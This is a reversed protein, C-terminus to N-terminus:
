DLPGTVREVAALVEGSMVMAEARGLEPSLWRDPGAGAVGAERLAALAAATPAAPQLPQRLDIGRAACVLECAIIRGLNAVSARLKRAAGWGMSVHDEQM